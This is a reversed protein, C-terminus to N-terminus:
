CCGDQSSECKGLLVNSLLASYGFMTMDLRYMDIVDNLLSPSIRSFMILEKGNKTVETHNQKLNLKNQPLYIGSLKHSIIYDEDSQSTELKAVYHYKIACPLCM